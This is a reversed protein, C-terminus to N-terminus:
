SRTAERIREEEAIADLDETSPERRCLGAYHAEMMANFAVAALQHLDDNFHDHAVHSLYQSFHERAHDAIVAAENRRMPGRSTDGSTRRAQFSDPGYKQFGYRGVDNMAALFAPDLFDFVPQSKEM